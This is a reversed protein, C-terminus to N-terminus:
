SSLRHKSFNYRMMTSANAEYAYLTLNV